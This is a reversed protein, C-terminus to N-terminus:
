YRLICNRRKKPQTPVLVLNEVEPVVKPVYRFIKKQELVEGEEVIIVQDDDDDDLDM